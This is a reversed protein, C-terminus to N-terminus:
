KILVQSLLVVIDAKQLRMVQWELQYFTDLCTRKM